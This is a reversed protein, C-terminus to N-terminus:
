YKIMYLVRTSLPQVTGSNGYIGNILQANFGVNYVNCNGDKGAGGNTGMPYFAAGQSNPDGYKYAHGGHWGTINPM